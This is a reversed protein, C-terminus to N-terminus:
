SMIIHTPRICAMRWTENTVIANRVKSIDHFEDHTERVARLAEYMRRQFNQLMDATSFKSGSSTLQYPLQGVWCNIVVNM